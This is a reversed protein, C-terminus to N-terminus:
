NGNAEALPNLILVYQLPKLGILQLLNVETAHYNFIHNKM